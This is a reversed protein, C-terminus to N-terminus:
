PRHDRPDKPESETISCGVLTDPVAEFEYM